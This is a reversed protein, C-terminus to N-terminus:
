FFTKDYDQTSTRNLTIIRTYKNKISCLNVKRNGLSKPLKSSPRKEQGEITGDMLGGTM